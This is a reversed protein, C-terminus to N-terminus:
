VLQRRMRYIEERAEDYWEGVKTDLWGDMVDLWLSATFGPLGTCYALHNKWWKCEARYASETHKERWVVYEQGRREAETWAVEAGYDSM